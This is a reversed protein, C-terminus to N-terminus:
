WRWLPLTVAALVAAGPVTTIWSLAIRGVVPWRVRRWQVGSGVGVIAPAVVDSTSVPAGLVSGLLVTGGAVGQSVLGDVSRIKFIGRGLTRVIRWGGLATGLSIALTCAIRSWEPVTVTHRGDVAAAAVAIVGFSKATDNAGHSFALLGATVWESRRVPVAIERRARRLLRRALVTVVYAGGFAVFPSLSLIALVGVVGNPRLGHLGGWNVSSWGSHVVAAGALGGVLAHSSSSPLGWWWTLLNWALAGTIGAAAVTAADRGPVDIIGAITLAVATGVLFPAVLHAIVALTVAQRPGAARTAVLAAIVNSADHMGNVLAFAVAVVSVAVLLGDM